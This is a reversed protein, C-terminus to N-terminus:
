FRFYIFPNYTDSAIQTCSALLIAVLAANSGVAMAVGTLGQALGRAKARLQELRTSFWSWVPGSGLVGAILAVIVADDLYRAVTHEVGGAAGLGVMARLFVGAQALSDARFLVWGVMVLLLTYVHRLPRPVRELKELLGLREIVLMAGHFAGWALFTWNAGHWLGCLLFVIVLNAYTRLPSGRNGGLPIYLYDRFWRSLSIHWRRWFETISTSIYPFNFNELFHFGFMRALGIAMDSYGSFDFYIQLTYCVVGLWALGTSLQDAPLAFIRDAVLAVTNAILMKKGMGLIFRRVGESFDTWRITRRVLEQAIDHYRVIPGAILQPFLLIYLLLDMPNRRVQAVGRYVDIKYSIKHFTFFSIGLPLPIQPVPLQGADVAALLGNLSETFLTAYKFVVLLALDTAIGLALLPKRWRSGQLAELGIAVVYNLATSALLWPLFAWEGIAYFLLSALTIIVNSARSPSLFYLALLVPLFLFLFAPETFLM